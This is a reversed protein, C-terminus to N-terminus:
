LSRLFNLLDRKQPESLRQFGAVVNNAESAKFRGDFGSAHAGIAEV